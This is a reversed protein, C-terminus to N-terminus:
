PLPYGLIPKIRELSLSHTQGELTMGRYTVWPLCLQAKERLVKYGPSALFNLLSENARSVLPETSRCLLLDDFYQLLTVGPHQWDLLDKALAQGLLHPSDRFDQPLV